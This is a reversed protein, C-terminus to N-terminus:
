NHKLLAAVTGATWRRARCHTGGANLRRAIAAHTLGESHWARVRAIVLQEVPDAVLQGDARRWGYPPQDEPGPVARSALRHGSNAPRNENVFPYRAIGGRAVTSLM